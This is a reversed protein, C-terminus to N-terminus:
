GGNEDELGDSDDQSESDSGENEIKDTPEDDGAVSEESDKAGSSPEPSETVTAETEEPQEIDSNDPERQGINSTEMLRGKSCVRRSSFEFGKKTLERRVNSVFPQSVRVRRAIEGDSWQGWEEDKLLTEVAHRKDANTRRLGHDANAGVAHLTADRESGKIIDVDVLDIGALKYAEYRHWGDALILDQGDGFVTLPPFQQGGQIEESYEFIVKEDLQVRQQVRDNITIRRIEIQQQNMEPEGKHQDIFNHFMMITTSEARGAEILHNAGSLIQRASLYLNDRRNM